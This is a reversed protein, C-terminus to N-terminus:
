KLTLDKKQYLGTKVEENAQKLRQANKPSKLLYVTEELAEFDELSMIVVSRESQRTIVIPTHNDCVEEMTTKLSSRAKTYSVTKM